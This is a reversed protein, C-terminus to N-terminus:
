YTIQWGLYWSYLNTASANQFGTGASFLLHIHEDFDYQGGLNFGTQDLHAINDATQHFIEGGLTLRETVKKQLLWGFFWYNKDGYHDDQNIWYGGGGYTTWDGFDKQVWLPLFARVHGAGLGRSQDGSPLELLPFTGISPWSGNKDQEIFRYKFGLETDGYGFQNPGGSPIDFAAPAVIHVM